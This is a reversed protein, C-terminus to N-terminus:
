RGVRFERSTVSSSAHGEPGPDTRWAFLFRYTGEHFAPSATGEFHTSLPDIEVEVVEGPGIRVVATAKEYGCGLVPEWSGDTWRELLVISCATKQDETYIARDLGNGVTTAVPDGVPFAAKAPTVAVEGPRTSGPTGIALPPPTPAPVGPEPSSDPSAKKAITPTPSGAGCAM